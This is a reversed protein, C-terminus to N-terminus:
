STKILDWDVDSEGRLMLEQSRECYFEAEPSIRICEVRVTGDPPRAVRDPSGTAVDGKRPGGAAKLSSPGEFAEYGVAIRTRRAVADGAPEEELVDVRGRLRDLCRHVISKQLKTSSRWEAQICDAPAEFDSRKWTGVCLGRIVVVMQNMWKRCVNESSRRQTVRRGSGDRAGRLPIRPLSLLPDREREMRALGPSHQMGVGPARSMPPEPRGVYTRVPEEAEIRAGIGNVKERAQPSVDETASAESDSTEMPIPFPTGGICSCLFSSSSSVKRRGLSVLFVIACYFWSLLLGGSGASYQGSARQRKLLLLLM